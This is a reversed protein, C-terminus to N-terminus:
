PTSSWKKQSNHLTYHGHHYSPRKYFSGDRHDEHPDFKDPGQTKLVALKHLMHRKWKNKDDIFSTDRHTKFGVKKTRPYKTYHQYGEFLINKDYVFKQKGTIFRLFRPFGTKFFGCHRM